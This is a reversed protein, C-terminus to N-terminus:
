HADKKLIPFVEKIIFNCFLSSYTRVFPAVVDGDTHTATDSVFKFLLVATSCITAAQIIAAGEMDALDAQRSLRLREEPDFVPKDQTALVACDFDPLVSPLHSYATGTRLHPRDPEIARSIQFIDGQKYAPNLGGACGLNLIWGSPSRMSSCAVAIAANAKGIGSIVLTKDQRRYMPFPSEEIKVMDLARIFPDAEVITAFIMTLLSRPTDANPATTSITTVTKPLRKMNTFM